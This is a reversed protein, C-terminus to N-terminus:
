KVLTLKFDVKDSMLIALGAQKTPDMLKTFRKWGKVRLWQKNRDILHTGQLCCIALHHRKPFNFGNVNLKLISLYTTFEVM